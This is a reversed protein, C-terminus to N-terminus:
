RRYGNIWVKEGGRNQVYGRVKARKVTKKARKVTKKARKAKVPSVDAPVAMPPTLHLTEVDSEGSLAATVFEANEAMDQMEFKMWPEVDKRTRLEEAMANGAQLRYELPWHPVNRRRNFDGVRALPPMSHNFIMRLTYFLHPTAMDKPKVMENKDTEWIFPGEQVQRGPYRANTKERLTLLSAGGSSFQECSPDVFENAVPPNAWPDREDPTVEFPPPAVEGLPVYDPIPVERAELGLPTLLFAILNKM